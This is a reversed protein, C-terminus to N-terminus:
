VIVCLLLPCGGTGGFWLKRVPGASGGLHGARGSRVLVMNVVGFFLACVARWLRGQSHLLAGIQIWGMFYEALLTSGGDWVRCFPGTSWGRSWASAISVMPSSGIVGQKCLLHEVLHALGGCVGVGLRVIVRVPM